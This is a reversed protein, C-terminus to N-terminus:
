YLQGFNHTRRGERVKVHRKIFSKTVSSRKKVQIGTKHNETYYNSTTILTSRGRMRGIIDSNYWKDLDKRKKSAFNGEHGTQHLMLLTPTVDVVDVPGRNCRQIIHTDYHLRGILVDKILYWPFRHENMIFFCDASDRRFVKGFKRGVRHVDGTMYLPTHNAHKMDVNTRPGTALLPKTGNMQTSIAELTQLLGKDFLIDSNCYAYFRSRSLNAAARYMDKLFPTGYPHARPVPEVLFNTEKALSTMNTSMKSMFLIRTVNTGFLAWNRLTNKHIYDKQSDDIFTTFLTLLPTSKTPVHRPARNPTRHSHWTVRNIIFVLTLSLCAAHFLFRRVNM